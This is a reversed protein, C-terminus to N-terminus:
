LEDALELLIKVTGLPTLNDKLIDDAISTLLIQLELKTFTNSIEM